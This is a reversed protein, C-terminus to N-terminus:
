AVAHNEPFEIPGNSINRPAHRKWFSINFNKAFEVRIVVRKKQPTPKRQSVMAGSWESKFSSPNGMGFVNINDFRGPSLM